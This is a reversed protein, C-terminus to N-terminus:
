DRDVADLLAETPKLVTNADFDSLQRFVFPTHLHRGWLLLAKKPSEQVGPVPVVGDQEVQEAGERLASQLWLSPLCGM